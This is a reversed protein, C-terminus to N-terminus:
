RHHSLLEAVLAVGLAVLITTITWKPDGRFLLYILVKKRHEKQRRDFRAERRLESSYLTLLQASSIGRRQIEAALAARAADTLSDIQAHLSAIEMESFNRYSESFQEEVRHM